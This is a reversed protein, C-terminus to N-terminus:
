SASATAPPSPAASAPSGTPGGGSALPRTDEMVQSCYALYGALASLREAEGYGSGDPALPPLAFAATVAAALEATLGAARDMRKLHWTQGTGPPLPRGTAALDDVKEAWDPLAATLASRVAMPDYWRVAGDPLVLRFVTDRTREPKRGTLWRWLRGIM